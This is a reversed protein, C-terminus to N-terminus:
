CIDQFSTQQIVAITIATMYHLLASLLALFNLWTYYCFMDGIDSGTHSKLTNCVIRSVKEKWFRDLNQWKQQRERHNKCCNYSWRDICLLHCSQSVDTSYVCVCVELSNLHNSYHSFYHKFRELSQTETEKAAKVYDDIMCARAKEVQMRAETQEKYRNCRYCSHIGKILLDHCIKGDRFKWLM